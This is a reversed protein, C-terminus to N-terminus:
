KKHFYFGGDAYLRHGSQIELYTSCSEGSLKYILENGSVHYSGYRYSGYQLESCSGSKGDGEFTVVVYGYAGMDCSWTGVIWSYDESDSRASTQERAGYSGSDSSGCSFCSRFMLIIAVLIIIVYLWFKRPTLEENNNAM